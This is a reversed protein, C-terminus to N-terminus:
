DKAHCKNCSKRAFPGFVAAPRGNYARTATAPVYGYNIKNETVSPDYEAVGADNGITSFENLYFFRLMSEFGSAHVRHCSVCAVNNSTKASRDVAGTLNSREKLGGVGAYVNSGVEFPTLTSYAANVDTNSMVGSTVYANYNSVIFTPLKASNGAPHRLGAMGSSYGNMLINGHCNACWESMGQGYAVFTQSAQSTEARNYNSPASADPVQNAFPFSPNSKPAYGQGGLIRYAGVAYVNAIPDLSSNYSGSNRIPLSSSGPGTPTVYSGDALRRTRGHPDHCSSCALAERPYGGGPATTLTKDAAYGFDVAVINHGHRDADYEFTKGRPTVTMTKKLWSFDGGPTMQAPINVNDFPTVAETSVHYGSLTTGAGHCNLCAGSQDQAKLLYPGSAFQPSGTVNASGEFSNHMSHCGECEAVGGSHFAYAARFSLAAAVAFVVRSPKM